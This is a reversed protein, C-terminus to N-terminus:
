ENIIYARWRGQKSSGREIEDLKEGSVCTDNAERGRGKVSYNTLRQDSQQDHNKNRRLNEDSFALYLSIGQPYLDSRNFEKRAFFFSLFFCFLFLRSLANCYVSHFSYVFPNLSARTIDYANSPVCCHSPQVGRQKRDGAKSTVSYM